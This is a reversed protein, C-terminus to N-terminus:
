KSGRGNAMLSAVCQGQNVFGFSAFGGKKCQDKSELGATAPSIDLNYRVGVVPGTAGYAVWWGPHGGSGLEVDVGDPSVSGYSDRVTVGNLTLTMCGDATLLDSLQSVCTAPNATGDIVFNVNLIGDGIDAAAIRM